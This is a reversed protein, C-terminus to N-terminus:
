AVLQLISCGCRKNVACTAEKKYTMELKIKKNVSRIIHNMTQEQLNM